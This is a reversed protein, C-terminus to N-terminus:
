ISILGCIVLVFAVALITRGELMDVRETLETHRRVADHIEGHLRRCMADTDAFERAAQLSERRDQERAMQIQVVLRSLRDRTDTDM